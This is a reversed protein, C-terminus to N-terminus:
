DRWIRTTSFMTDQVTQADVTPRRPPLQSLVQEIQKIWRSANFRQRVNTSIRQRWAEREAIPMMMLSQMAGALALPNREVKISDIATFWEAAGIQATMIPICGQAAAEFPVLGLPERRWTPFLLGDYERFANLMTDRSLMGQYRIHGGLGEAHVRQIFEPVQGGGYVDITFEMDGCALLHKASEILLWIGKHPALRSSFVFRAPGSERCVLPPLEDPVWGPVFLPCALPVNLGQQIEELVTHSVPLCRLSRLAKTAGFLRFFAERMGTDVCAQNFVNDGLYIAPSFGIEALFTVLGLAGLGAINCLLVQDPNFNEVLIRLASINALQIMGSRFAEDAPNLRDLSLGTYFMTRHVVFPLDAIEANHNVLPSTAVAVEHGLTALHQALEFAVLEYGGIVEPPFLNSILLFRM